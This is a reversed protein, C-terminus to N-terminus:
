LAAPSGDLILMSAGMVETGVPIDVGTLWRCSMRSFIIVVACFHGLDRKSCDATCFNDISGQAARKQRSRGKKDVGIAIRWTGGKVLGM